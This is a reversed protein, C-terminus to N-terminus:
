LVLTSIPLRRVLRVPREYSKGDGGQSGGGFSQFWAYYASSQEGTWYWAEEFEDKLNAFLMASEVRNPVEAGHEAAFDLAARWTLRGAPKLDLLVLVYPVGDKGTTIGAFKGEALAAGLAPLTTTSTATNM